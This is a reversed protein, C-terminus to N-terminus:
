NSEIQITPGGKSKIAGAVGGGHILRSNAANTIAMSIEDTIDAKIVEVTLVEGIVGKFEGPVPLRVLESSEHQLSAIVEPINM